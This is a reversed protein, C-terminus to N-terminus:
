LTVFAFMSWLGFFPASITYISINLVYKSIFANSRLLSVVRLNLKAKRPKPHTECAVFGNLLTALTTLINSM